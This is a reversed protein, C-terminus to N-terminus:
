FLVVQWFNCKSKYWNETFEAYLVDDSDYHRSTYINLEASFIPLFYVITILTTLIRKIM